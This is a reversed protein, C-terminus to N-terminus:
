QNNVFLLRRREDEVKARKELETYEKAQSAFNNMKRTEEKTQVATTKKYDFNLKKSMNLKKERERRDEAAKEQVARVQNEKSLSVTVKAQTM